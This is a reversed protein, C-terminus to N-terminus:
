QGDELPYIDKLFHSLMLMFIPFVCPDASNVLSQGFYAALPLFYLDTDKGSRDAKVRDALISGAFFLYLAFGIIGCTMLVQIPESHSTLVLLGYGYSLDMYYSRLMEPGVGILRQVATYENRFLRASDYWIMGRGSGWRFPDAQYVKLEYAAVAAVALVFAVTFIYIFIRIDKDRLSHSSFFVTVAIGFVMVAYPIPSKILFASVGDVWELREAPFLGTLLLEAGTVILFIGAGKMKDAKKIFSPVGFLACVAMGLYFGDCSALIATWMGMSLIIWDAVKRARSDTKVADVLYLPIFVCLYAAMWNSNGITSIYAYYQNDILEAHTRLVDVGASELMAVTFVAANAAAATIFLCRDVTEARTIMLLFLSAATITFSGIRWGEMGYFSNLFGGSLASSFLSHCAFAMLILEEKRLKPASGFLKGCVAVEAATMSLLILAGIRYTDGKAEVIDFYANHFVLPVIGVVLVIYLCSILQTIKDANKKM